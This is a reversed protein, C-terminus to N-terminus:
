FNLNETINIRMTCSVLRVNKLQGSIRNVKEMTNRNKLDEWHYTFLFWFCNERHCGVNRNGFDVKRLSTKLWTVWFHSETLKITMTESHHSPYRYGHTSEKAHALYTQPPSPGMDTPVVHGVVATDWACVKGLYCKVDCLLKELWKTCWESITILFSVNSFNVVLVWRRHSADRSMNQLEKTEAAHIYLIDIWLDHQAFPKLIEASKISWKNKKLNAYHKWVILWGTILKLM